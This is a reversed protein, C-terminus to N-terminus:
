KVAGAEAPAAKTPPAAIGYGGLRLVGIVLLVWAAQIANIGYFHGADPGRGGAQPPLALQLLPLEALTALAILILVLVSAPIAFRPLLASLVLPLTMIVGAVALFVLIMPQGGGSRFGDGLLLTVAVRGCGLVVAVIATVIMLQRIGFQRESPDLGYSRESSHRLRLGFAFALYWMPLQAIAWHGLLCGGLVVM